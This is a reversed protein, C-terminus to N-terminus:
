CALDLPPPRGLAARRLKRKYLKGSPDRPLEPLYDISRPLKYRAIPEGSFHLLDATLADSPEAGPCPCSPRRPRRAGSTTRSASSQQTLVKPHGFLAM